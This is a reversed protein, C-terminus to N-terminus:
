SCVYGSYQRAIKWVAVLSRLTAMCSSSRLCPLTRQAASRLVARRLESTGLLASRAPQTRDAHKACPHAMGRALLTRHLAAREPTAWACWRPSARSNLVASKRGACSAVLRQTSSMPHITVDPKPWTGPRSMTCAARRTRTVHTLAHRLPASPDRAERALQPGACWLRCWPQKATDATRHL